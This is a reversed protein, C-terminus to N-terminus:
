KMGIRASPGLLAEVLKNMNEQAIEPAPASSYVTVTSKEAAIIRSSIYNTTGDCHCRYVMSWGPTDGTQVAFSVIAVQDESSKRYTEALKEAWSRNVEGARIKKILAKNSPEITFVVHAPKGCSEAKCDIWFSNRGAAGRKWETAPFADELGGAMAPAAALCVLLALVLSLPGIRM